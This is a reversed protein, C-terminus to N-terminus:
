TDHIPSTAPSTTLLCHTINIPSSFAHRLIAPIRYNPKNDPAVPFLWVTQFLPEAARATGQLMSSAALLSVCLIQITPQQLLSM